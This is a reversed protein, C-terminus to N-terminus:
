RKVVVIALNQVLIINIAREDLAFHVLRAHHATVTVLWVAQFQAGLAIAYTGLAVLGSGVVSLLM